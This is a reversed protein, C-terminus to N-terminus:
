RGIVPGIASSIAWVMGIIGYYVGRTRLSFLDGVCINVIVTLGGGGVGQIARGAILMGMNVSAGAIVSGAFFVVVTTLPIPKRGWIDSIKGWSPVSAANALLYSGTMCTM